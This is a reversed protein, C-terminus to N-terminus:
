EPPMRPGRWRELARAAYVILAVLVDLSVLVGFVPVLIPALAWVMACALLLGTGALWIRLFSM